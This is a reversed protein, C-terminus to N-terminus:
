QLRRSRSPRILILNTQLAINESRSQFVGRIMQLRPLITSKLHSWSMMSWYWPWKASNLVLIPHRRQSSSHRRMNTLNPFSRASNSSLGAITDPWTFPVNWYKELHGWELARINTSKLGASLQSQWRKRNPRQTQNIQLRNALQFSSPSAVWARTTQNLRGSIIVQQSHKSVYERAPLHDVEMRDVKWGTPQQSFKMDVASTWKRALWQGWPRKLFKRDRTPMQLDPSNLSCPHKRLQWIREKEKVLAQTSLHLDEKQPLTLSSKLQMRQVAWGQAMDVWTIRTVQYSDLVWATLIREVRFYRAEKTRSLIGQKSSKTM